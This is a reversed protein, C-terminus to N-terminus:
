RHYEAMSPPEADVRYSPHKRLVILPLLYPWATDPNALPMGIQLRADLSERSSMSNLSRPIAIAESVTSAPTTSRFLEYVSVPEMGTHAVHQVVREIIM